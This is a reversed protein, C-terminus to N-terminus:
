NSTLDLQLKNEIFIDSLKCSTPSIINLEIETTRNKVKYNIRGLQDQSYKENIYPSHYQALCKLEEKIRSYAQKTIKRKITKSKVFMTKKTVLVSDQEQKFIYESGYKGAFGGNGIEELKFSTELLNNLQDIEGKEKCAFLQSVFLIIWILFVSNKYKITNNNM